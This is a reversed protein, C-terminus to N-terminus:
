GKDGRVSHGQLREGDTHKSCEGNHADVGGTTFEIIENEKKEVVVTGGQNCEHSGVFGDLTRVVKRERFCSDPTPSKMSNSSVGTIDYCVAHRDITSM